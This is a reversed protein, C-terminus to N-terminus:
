ISQLAKTIKILLVLSRKNNADKYNAYFEDGTDGSLAVTVSKKALKSILYTPIQSSDSFPEDFTKHISPALDYIEKKDIYIENHNTGLSSAILKAKPAEDYNKDNIGITFTNVKEDSLTQMSAVIFYSDTGGSLLACLHVDYIM